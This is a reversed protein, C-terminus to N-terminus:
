GRVSGEAALDVQPASACSPSRAPWSSIRGSIFGTALEALQASTKLRAAGRGRPGQRGGFCLRRVADAHHRDGPGSREGAAPRTRMARVFDRLERGYGLSWGEEPSAPIWGENSSIKEVLYVDKMQEHRPNYVDIVNVPSMRCRTRHNNAFVEVFDYIGGMVLESATIDGVTGDDFVVHLLATTKPTRIPRASSDRTKSDRSRRHHLPHARFRVGAPDAAGAAGNGGQAEPLAGRGASPLGQRDALRRGPHELNRVGAFAIRQAVGRGGAASDPRADEGRDRAGEAGFARLRLEGRIRAHRRGQPLGRAPSRSEEVVGDLM